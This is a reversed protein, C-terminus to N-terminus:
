RHLFSQDRPIFPGTSGRGWPPWPGPAPPPCHMGRPRSDEAMSHLTCSPSSNSFFGLLSLGPLSFSLGKGLNHSPVLLPRQVPRSYMAREPDGLALAKEQARMVRCTVWHVRAECSWQSLQSTLQASASDDSRNWLWLSIGGLGESQGQEM